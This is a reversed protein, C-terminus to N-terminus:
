PDQDIKQSVRNAIRGLSTMDLDGHPLFTAIYPERHSILAFTNVLFVQGPNEVAIEFYRTIEFSAARAQPQGYGPFEDFCLSSLYPYIAPHTFAAAESKAQGGGSRFKCNRLMTDVEFRM